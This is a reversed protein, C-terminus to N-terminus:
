IQEQTEDTKMTGSIKSKVDQWKNLLDQGVTVAGGGVVGLILFGLVSALGSYIYEPVKYKTSVTAIIALALYTILALFFGVILASVRKEEISFLQKLM